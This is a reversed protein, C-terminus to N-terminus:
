DGMGENGGGEWIIPFKAEIEGLGHCVGLCGGIGEFSEM